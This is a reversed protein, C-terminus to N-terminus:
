PQSAKMQRVLARYKDRIERLDDLSYHKPTHDAELAEVAALGIRQVVGARFASRTTGGPRNCNKRQAFVNNPDFRLQPSSGRSLYHGADVSGGPKSPEFPQDCCICLQGVDRLRIFENFAQQAEAILKKRPKAAEKRARFTLAEIKRLEAERKIRARELGCMPGCVSQLSRSPTFVSKCHKCKKPKLATQLM